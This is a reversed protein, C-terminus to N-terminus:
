RWRVFCFDLMIETGEQLMLGGVPKRSGYMHVRLSSVVFFDNFYPHKIFTKFQM